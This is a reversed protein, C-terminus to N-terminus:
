QAKLTTDPVVEETAPTESKVLTSIFVSNKFDANNVIENIAEEKKKSDTIELAKAAFKAVAIDVEDYTIAKPKIWGSEVWKGDKRKGVVEIFGEKESKVAIIDMKSFSKGTKNLLDPRSYIEANDVVAAPKSNLIVFDSQAWGEKGDKLKVKVYTVTKKDSAVEKTDDMYTVTEGISIACIWKGSEDPTEKLSINDWVCVATVTSDGSDSVPASGSNCSVSFLAIIIFSIFLNVKRM